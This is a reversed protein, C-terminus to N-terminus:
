MHGILHSWCWHGQTVSITMKTTQYKKVNPGYSQFYIM